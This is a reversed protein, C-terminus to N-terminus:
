NLHSFYYLIIAASSAVNLSDINQMPIKIKLSALTLLEDNVGHGENSFVIIYPKKIKGLADELFISDKSLTTVILQYGKKILEKIKDLNVKKFNLHFLAGESAQLTKNNSWSATEGYSYVYKFNFALASRYITGVNGPDQVNDLLVINENEEDIEKPKLEVLAIVGSPSVHNSLLKLIDENVLTIKVDKFGEVLYTSIIEKVYGAEYAMRISNLGSVLTLYDEGKGEKIKKLYKIHENQRSTIVLPKM